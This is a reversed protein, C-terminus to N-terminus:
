TEWLSKIRSFNAPGYSFSFLLDYIPARPTSGSVGNFFRLNNIRHNPLFWLLRSEGLDLCVPPVRIDDETLLDM